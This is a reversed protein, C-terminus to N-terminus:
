TVILTGRMEEPHLTCVFPYRGPALRLTQRRAHGGPLEVKGVGKVTFDHHATDRNDIWLGVDGAAARVETESFESDAAVLRIDGPQPVHDDVSLGAALAFLVLAAFTTVGAATLVVPAATRRDDRHRALGVGSAIVGVTNVVTYAAYNLFDIWSEPHKLADIGGFVTLVLLLQLLCLAGAALVPARSGPALRLWTLSGVFLLIAIIAGAPVEINFLDYLELAVNALLVVTLLRRWTWTTWPHPTRAPTM